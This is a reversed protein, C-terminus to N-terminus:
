ARADTKPQTKRFHKVLHGVTDSPKAGLKVFHDLRDLNLTLRAPEHRPDYTGIAEIRRGDRPMRSDAAVIHYFPKKKAGARALRIVVAM